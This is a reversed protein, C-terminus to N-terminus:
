KFLWEETKARIEAVGTETENFFESDRLKSLQIRSKKM